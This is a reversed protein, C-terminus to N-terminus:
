IERWSWNLWSVSKESQVSYINLITSWGDNWFKTGPDLESFTGLIWFGFKVVSLTM